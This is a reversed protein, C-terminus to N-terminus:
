SEYIKRMKKLKEVISERFEIPELVTCKAGLSLVRQTALFKNFYSGEIIYENNIVEVIRENETLIDLSFNKLKFKIKTNQPKFYHEKYKKSCISVIRKLNLITGFGKEVDIGHLFIQDNEFVIKKAIIEKKSEIKSDPKKYILEITKETQCDNILEELQEVNFYKLVSVGLLQEKINKDFLNQTIKKILNDFKILSYIDSNAKFIKYAKKLYKIDEDTIKLAFPHELLEYKYNTKPSSRSIKCGIHKLTNIDIRIIDNSHKEELINLDIFAKRIEELSRPAMILLGLLVLSRVGTLSIQNLDSREIPKFM